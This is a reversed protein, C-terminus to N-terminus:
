GSKCWKAGFIRLFKIKLEVLKKKKFELEALSLTVIFPCKRFMFHCNWPAQNHLIQALRTAFFTYM